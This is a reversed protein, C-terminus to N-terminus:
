RPLSQKRKKGRKDGKLQGVETGNSDGAGPLPIPDGELMTADMLRPKSDYTDYDVLELEPLEADKQAPQVEIAFATQVPPPLSAPASAPTNTSM